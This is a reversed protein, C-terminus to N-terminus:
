NTVVIIFLVLLFFFYLSHMIILWAVKVINFGGILTFYIYINIVYMKLFKFPDGKNARKRAVYPRKSWRLPQSWSDCWGASSESLLGTDILPWGLHRSVCCFLRFWHWCIDMPPSRRSMTDLVANFCMELVGNGRAVMWRWGPCIIIHNAVTMISVMAELYPLGLYLNSVSKIHNPMLVKGETRGCASCDSCLTLVKEQLCVMLELADARSQQWGAVFVWVYVCDFLNFSAQFIINWNLLVLTIWMHYHNTIDAIFHQLVLTSYRLLLM